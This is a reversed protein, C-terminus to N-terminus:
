WVIVLRISIIRRDYTRMCYRVIVPSSDVWKSLVRLKMTNSDKWSHGYINWIFFAIFYFTFLDVWYLYLSHLYRERMSENFFYSHISHSLYERYTIIAPVKNKNNNKTKNGTFQRRLIFIRFTILVPTKILSSIVCDLRDM